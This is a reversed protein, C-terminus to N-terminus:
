ALGQGMPRHETQPISITLHSQPRQSAKDPRARVGWTHRHGRLLPHKVPMDRGDARRRFARFSLARLAPMGTKVHQQIQVPGESTM